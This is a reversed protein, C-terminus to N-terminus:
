GVPTAGVTVVSYIIYALYIAVMLIGQWRSFKKLILTPVVAIVAELLCIPMDIRVYDKETVLKNGSILACVPLIITTDIINAGIINGVSMAGQKKLLSTVATVLEPLSTGIAVLTIAVIRPDVGFVEKALYEGNEVLLNSGLALMAAGLVFKVLSSTLARSTVKPREEIEKNKAGSYLNEALFLVFFVLIVAAEWLTLQTDLCLLLLALLSCVLLAGKAAIQKRRIVLPTFIVSVGMILGTNATVSGIANGIAMSAEGKSAAIFSVIMEPLTTAVSVVTAGVIFKPIGSAEAMWTAADVFIDGGKIILALGIVFLVCAAVTWATSPGASFLSYVTNSM